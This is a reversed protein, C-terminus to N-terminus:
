PSNAHFPPKLNYPNISQTHTGNSQIYLALTLDISNCCNSIFVELLKNTPIKNILKLLDKLLKLVLHSSALDVRLLQLLPLNKNTVIIYDLYNDLTTIKAIQGLGSINM